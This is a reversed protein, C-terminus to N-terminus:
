SRADARVFGEVVIRIDNWILWHPNLVSAGHKKYFHLGATNSPDVDVCIKLANQSVLWGALLRLLESAVGKRRYETAVHIWQVEGNCSYRRSLHGTILGIVTEGDVAVYGIRPPLAMQPNHEGEFYRTIRDTWYEERSARQARLRGMTPFDAPEAQRYHITSMAKM